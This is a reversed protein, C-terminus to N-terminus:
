HCRRPYSYRRTQGYNDEVIFLHEQRSLFLDLLKSIPINENIRYVKKILDEKKELSNLIYEYFYEKSIIIGVIDDINEEYIPIRSYEKIKKM